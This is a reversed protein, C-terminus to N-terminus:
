FLIYLFVVTYEEMGWAPNNRRKCQFNIAENKEFGLIIQLTRSCKLVSM